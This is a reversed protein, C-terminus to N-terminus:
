GRLDEDMQTTLPTVLVREKKAVREEIRPILDDVQGTAPRITIMPDVLGTPRIIQEVIQRSREREYPGPTASTFIVQGIREGFEPFRLPRNDAASPLRFGYEILTEKRARDGQYMGNLQPVTIHSEDIVTLFDKPFYDLLTDPAEGAKRGALHRSYNEIGHCYGVERIMAVDMKTRREM